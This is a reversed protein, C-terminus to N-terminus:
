SGRSCCEGGARWALDQTCLFCSCGWTHNQPSQGQANFSSSRLRLLTKHSRVSDIRESAQASVVDPTLLYQTFLLSQTVSATRRRPTAPPGCGPIASSHSAGFRWLHAEACVGPASTKDAVIAFCVS